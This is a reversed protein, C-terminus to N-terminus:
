KGNTASVPSPVGPELANTRNPPASRSVNTTAIQTEQSNTKAPESLAKAIAEALRQRYEPDAIRKAEHPNSLYGGEILIAPRNQGHLVGMFRAHRVGRDALGNVQLLARHLRFAYQWNEVDYANNPFILSADDEYGRTLTSPMGTPTLCYTELGTQQQNPAASNFHLSLFLDAKHQEAFAVRNSLPVDVDDTRTLFVQWGNTSLLGALRSAWDLAFDKEYYNGLVSKTGPNAGGHGPDIVIVKNTKAPLGAQGSDGFLPRIEKELDLARIFPQGNVMEPKFGLHFELNNWSAVESEAHFVLVGNTTTLAFTPLPVLALRRLSANNAQAWRNVQLWPEVHTNARPAVAISNTVPPAPKPVPAPTEPRPQADPTGWDPARPGEAHKPPTSCGTLAFLLCFFFGCPKSM